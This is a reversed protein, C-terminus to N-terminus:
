NPRRLTAFREPWTRRGVGRTVPSDEVVHLEPALVAAVDATSMGHPPGGEAEPKGVPFVLAVYAGEPALCAVAVRGWQARLERPLACFFTHDWILDFTGGLREPTLALVDGVVVSGGGRALEAAIETAATPVLDVATVCWGRRALALADHGRGCGPVLARAGRRPPALAGSALRLSLEPHPGGLDWPTDGDAYHRAWDYRACNSM